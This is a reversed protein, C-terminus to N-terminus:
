VNEGRDWAKSWAPNIKGGVLTVQTKPARRVQFSIQHFGSDRLRDVNTLNRHLGPACADMQKALTNLTHWVFDRRFHRRGEDKDEQAWLYGKGTVSITLTCDLGGVPPKKLIFERNSSNNGCPSPEWHASRKMARAIQAVKAQKSTKM